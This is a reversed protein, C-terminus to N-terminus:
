LCCKSLIKEFKNNFWIKEEETHYEKWTTYKEKVVAVSTGLWTCSKQLQILGTPILETNLVRM